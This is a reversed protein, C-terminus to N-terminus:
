RPLGAVKRNERAPVFIPLGAARKTTVVESVLQQREQLLDLLQADIADIRERPGSLPGHTPDNRTPDDPRDTM